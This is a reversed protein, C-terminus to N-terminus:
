AANENGQERWNIQEEAYLGTWDQDTPLLGERAQLGGYHIRAAFAREGARM